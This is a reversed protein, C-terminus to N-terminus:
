AKSQGGNGGSQDEGIRYGAIRGQSAPSRIRNSWNLRRSNMANSPPAAAVHGNAARACCPPRIRRLPTNIDVAASSGSDGRRIAANACPNDRKATPPDHRQRKSRSRAIMANTSKPPRLGHPATTAPYNTPVVREICNSAVLCSHAHLFRWPALPAGKLVASAGQSPRGSMVCVAGQLNRPGLWQ